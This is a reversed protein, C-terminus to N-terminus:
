IFPRGKYLTADKSSYGIIRKSLGTKQMSILSEEVSNHTEQKININYM